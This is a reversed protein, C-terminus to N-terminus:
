KASPGSAKIVMLTVEQGATIRRHPTGRPVIILDGKGMKYEKGGNIGPARWEGPQVQSPSDLEGGLTYTATGDIIIFIDDAADHVEAQSASADKEHQIFVRCGINNGIMLNRTKNGSQLEKLAAELSQGPMVLYPQAAAAPAKAALAEVAGVKEHQRAGTVAPLMSLALILAVATKYPM